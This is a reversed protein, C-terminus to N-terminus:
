SVLSFASVDYLYVMPIIGLGQGFQSTLASKCEQLIKTHTLTVYYTFCVFSNMLYQNGSLTGMYLTVNDM